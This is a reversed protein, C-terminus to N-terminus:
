PHVKMPGSASVFKPRRVYRRPGGHSSASDSFNCNVPTAFDSSVWEAGLIHNIERIMSHIESIEVDSRPGQPQMIATVGIRQTISGAFGIVQPM